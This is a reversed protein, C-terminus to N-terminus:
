EDAEGETVGDTKPAKRTRRCNFANWIPIIIQQIGETMLLCRIPEALSYGSDGHRTNELGNCITELDSLMFHNKRLGDLIQDEVEKRLDHERKHCDECLTVMDAMDYEWPDKEDFYRMHHVHLTKSDDGCAICTFDDRELVDSYTTSM